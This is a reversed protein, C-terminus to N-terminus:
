LRPPGGMSECLRAGWRIDSVGEVLLQSGGNGPLPAAMSYSKLISRRGVVSGRRKMLVRRQEDLSM